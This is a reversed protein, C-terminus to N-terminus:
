GRLRRRWYGPRRRTHAVALVVIEGPDVLYVIVYPFRHLVFRRLDVKSSRVPGAAGPISRASPASSPPVFAPAVSSVAAYEEAAAQFEDQAKPHFRYRRM